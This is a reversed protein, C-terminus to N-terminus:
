KVIYRKVLRIKGYSNRRLEIDLEDTQKDMFLDFAELTNKLLTAKDEIAVSEEFWITKAQPKGQYYGERIIAAQNGDQTKTTISGYKPKM